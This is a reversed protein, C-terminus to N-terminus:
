ICIVIIIVDTVCFVCYLIHVFLIIIERRIFVIDTIYCFTYVICFSRCICRLIVFLEVSQFFLYVCDIVFQILKVIFKLISVLHFLNAELYVFRSFARGRMSRLIPPEFLLCGTKQM